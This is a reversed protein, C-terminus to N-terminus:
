GQYVARQADWRKRSEMKTSTAPFFTGISEGDELRTLWMPSWPRQCHRRKSGSATALRVADLKTAMGGRGGDGSPPGGLSEIDEGLHEVTQILRASPDLHPDATFLGAVDGLIVLLDADILNSVMGSLTDNDGFIEGTM